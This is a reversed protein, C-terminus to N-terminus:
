LRTTALLPAPGPAVLALLVALAHAGMNGLPICALTQTVARNVSMVLRLKRANLQGLMFFKTLAVVFTTVVFKLIVQPGM